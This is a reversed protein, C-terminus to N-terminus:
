GEIAEDFWRDRVRVSGERGKERGAESVECIMMDLELLVLPVFLLFAEEVGAAAEDCDATKGVKGLGRM